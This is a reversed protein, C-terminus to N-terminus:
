PTSEGAYPFSTAKVPRCSRPTAHGRTRFRAVLHAGQQVYRYSHAEAARVDMEEQTFLPEIQEEAM